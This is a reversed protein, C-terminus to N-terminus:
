SSTGGNSLIAAYGQERRARLRRYLWFVLALGGLALLYNLSEWFLRRQQGIPELLRSFQGRGRLTLLGRDELSWDVANQILEIPKLYRSQTAEGALSIATDTLFSSSGILILRASPPSSEVVGSFVPQSKETEESEDPISSDAAAGDEERALLPSPRGAFPSQFRGEVAVALLKRGQDDGRAFGLPGHQEFDPQMDDSDSTWAGASSQILEIVQREANRDADVRIPSSWNLTIQGLNSTIGSTEALGDARVDPFYPYDLTQIEQVVFGGLDRQVPIPFPTNQPDLVLTPELHLGQHALWDDLGTAARRAAISGGTLDVHFSSAALIATGGQMLFQDIAFQQKEDLDEPGIVLLLDTDEPVQGSTLDTERLSFNERLSEQLLGYENGASMGMGFDQPAPSPTYLALTRLMGPAFRKIAAEIARSLGARDLSEPPPIPIPTARDDSQLVMYFYFPTPDLLSTLLPEFGFQEQISKALSGDGAAPDAIEFSFRGASTAALEGLLAELERRLAPLPEPLAAADSIFGQFHLPSSHSAFLDGGGRYGYLVKKITRTLDYEPNRLRVDLDSESRVKVEILDQFGLTEFQDGYKVLLDFYSNVVSAQYKTETQFAVPRIGYQEGAERELEPSQQPDVFEVRVRGQGAIELEKLLDRLQPVLPALLPHTQASFYGRILLPEQLQDLYTRTAESLSYLRGETLDARIASVPHLWLNAAALNAVTLATILIWRRHHRPNAGHEAWRLRELSYVTLTLFVGVLSLYYYLDRLDLVGRTISEFRAGSGILRLLEGGGHGVLATLAPSGILYLFASVLTAGILAVIPNDTRSSVFLGISLYAAALLLTALYAGLVPGWDLPGLLAVTLPLPLTLALSVSVLGLAALFKGLVLRPTTVPLTLLTELTGARREESWLRMTLAACLFILLIPMWEFLPRVDAINRAFFADVWFFVFLSVALFTGIFLYAVPSGFFAALERRAVRLIESM